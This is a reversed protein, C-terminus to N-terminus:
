STNMLGYYSYSYYHVMYSSYLLLTLKNAIATVVEGLIPYLSESCEAASMRLILLDSMWWTIVQYPQSNSQLGGVQM